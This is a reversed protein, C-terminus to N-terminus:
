LAESVTQEYALYRLDPGLSRIRGEFSESTEYNVKELTEGEELNTKADPDSFNNKGHTKSINGDRANVWNQSSKRELTISM